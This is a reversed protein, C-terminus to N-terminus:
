RYEVKITAYPSKTDLKNKMLTVKIKKGNSDDLTGTAGEVFLTGIYRAESASMELREGILSGPSPHYGAINYIVVGSHENSLSRDWYSHIPNNSRGEIYYMPAKFGSQLALIKPSNQVLLVEYTGSKSKIDESAAGITYLTASSFLTMSVGSGMVDLDGVSSKSLIHPYLDPAGIIHGLEHAIVAPNVNNDVLTDTLTLMPVNGSSGSFLSGSNSFVIVVTQLNGKDMWNKVASDKRALEKYDNIIVSLGAGGAGTQSSPITKSYYKGNNDFVKFEFRLGAAEEYYNNVTALVVNEVEYADWGDKDDNKGYGTYGDGDRDRGDGYSDLKKDDTKGMIVAIRKKLAGTTKEVNIKFSIDKTKGDIFKIKANIKHEGPAFSRVISGIALTDYWDEKKLNIFKNDKLAKNLYTDQYITPPYIIVGNNIKVFGNESKGIAIPAFSTLYVLNLILKKNESTLDPVIFNGTVAGSVEKKYNITIDPIKVKADPSFLQLEFREFNNLLMQSGDPNYASVRVYVKDGKSFVTAPKTLDADSFFELKYRPSIHQVLGAGRYTISMFACQDTCYNLVSTIKYTKGNWTDTWETGLVDSGSVGTPTLLVLDGEKVNNLDGVNIPGGTSGGRISKSYSQKTEYRKLMGDELRVDVAEAAAGAEVTYLREQEAKFAALQAAAEADAKAKAADAAAQAAAIAPDLIFEVNVQESADVTIDCYTSGKYNCTGTLNKVVYGKDPIANLSVYTGVVFSNACTTGCNIKNDDTKVTGNGTKTVTILYENPSGFLAGVNKTADIKVDCTSEYGSCSGSWGMFIKGTDPTETLTVIKPVEGVEYVNSCAVGPCDIETSSKVRGPGTVNVILTARTNSFAASVSKESDVTVTCQLPNSEVPTCGTWGGFKAGRTATATLTVKTDKIFVGKASTCDSDCDIGPSGDPSAKVTGTGAGTKTLSLYTGLQEAAKFTATVTTQTNKESPITVACKKPNDAAVICGSWSKFVSYEDITTATLTVVTGKEFLFYCQKLDTYGSSSQEQGCKIGYESNYGKVDSTVYGSGGDIVVSVTLGNLVINSGTVCQGDVYIQGDPCDGLGGKNGSQIGLDLTGGSSSDGGSPETPSEGGSRLSSPVDQGGEEPAIKGSSVGDGLQMGAEYFKAVNEGTAFYMSFVVAVLAAILAYKTFNSLKSKYRKSRSKKAM